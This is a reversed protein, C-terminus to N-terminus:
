GEGPKSKKSKQIPLEEDGPKAPEADKAAKAEAIMEAKLEAKAEAKLKAKEKARDAIGAAEDSKPYFYKGEMGCFQNKANNSRAGRLGIPGINKFYFCMAFKDKDEKGEEPADVKEMKENVWGYSSCNGCTIGIKKIKAHTLRNKEKKQLAEYQEKDIM